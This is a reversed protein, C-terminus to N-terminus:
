KYLYLRVYTIITYFSILQNFHLLVMCTHMQFPVMQTSHFIFIIVYIFYIHNYSCYKFNFLTTIYHTYLILTIDIHFLVCMIWIMIEIILTHLHLLNQYDVFYLISFTLSHVRLYALFISTILTLCCKLFVWRWMLIVILQTCITVLM